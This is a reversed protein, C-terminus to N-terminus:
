AALRDVQDRRSGRLSEAELRSLLATVAAFGAEDRREAFIGVLRSMVEAAVADLDFAAQRTIAQKWIQVATRLFVGAAPSLHCTAILADFAAERGDVVIARVRRGSLGSLASLAAAFLDINGNCVIRILFATTIQGSSRLHEILGAMEDPQVRDALLATSRECAANVVGQTRRDGLANLVLPTSGLAQALQLVLMQRVDVPLDDRQLQLARVRGDAGHREALRRHTAAGIRAGRNALLIACAVGDAIEALAAAVHASLGPRGAVAEHQVGSGEVAIDILDGDTLVPSLAAVLGSVEAVDDGLARVLQRPARDSAALAEALAMRVKPSPDDLAITLVDMVERRQHGSLEGELLSHAFISIAEARERSNASQCWQVFEQTIM